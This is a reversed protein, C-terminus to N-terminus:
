VAELRPRAREADDRLKAEGRAAAHRIEKLLIELGELGEIAGAQKAYQAGERVPGTVMDAVLEDHANILLSRLTQFAPRGLLDDVEAQLEMSEQPGRGRLAKAWKGKANPEAGNM